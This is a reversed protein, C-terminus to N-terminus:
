CDRLVLRATVQTNLHRPLWHPRRFTPVGSLAQGYDSDVVMAVHVRVSTFCNTHFGDVPTQLKVWGRQSCKM